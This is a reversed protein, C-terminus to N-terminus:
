FPNRGFVGALREYVPANEPVEVEPGFARGRYQPKLNERAWALADRGVEPDLLTPQGTATAIDWAHVALDATHQHVAWTAPFEGIRTNLTGATGRHQWAAMLAGSATQYAAAWDDEILDADPSGLEQGKLMATFLQVDYVTHNVLARVDFESCPTSLGAQAHRVRAVISGCQEIARALLRLPDDTAPM